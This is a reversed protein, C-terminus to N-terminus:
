LRQLIHELVRGPSLNDMPMAQLTEVYPGAPQKLTPNTPGFLALTPVALLGALHGIGSDNGLYFRCQQLQRAVELLPKNGLITLMGPKIGPSIHRRVSALTEAESPGALL